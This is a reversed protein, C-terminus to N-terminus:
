YYTRKGSFIGKARRIIDFLKGASDLKPCITKEFYEIYDQLDDCTFKLFDLDGVKFDKGNVMQVIITDHLYRFGKSYEKEKKPKSRLKVISDYFSQKNLEMEM